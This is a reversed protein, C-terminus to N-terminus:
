NIGLQRYVHPFRLPLQVLERVLQIQSGLGGVDEFTVDFAGETLHADHYHLVIDTDADAFGPGEPLQHVEYTTGANSNPFRIYLVAGISLPTRSAALSAKLHPLLDHALSVD